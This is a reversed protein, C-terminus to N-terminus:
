ASFAARSCGSVMGLAIILAGALWTESWQLMLPGAKAIEDAQADDVCAMPTAKWMTRLPLTAQATVPPVSALMVKPAMFPQSAMRMMDDSVQRGKELSRLPM